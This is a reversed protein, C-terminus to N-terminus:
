RPLRDIVLRLGNGRSNNRLLEAPVPTTDLSVCEHRNAEVSGSRLTQSSDANDTWCWEHVNGMMDFLGWANPLKSACPHERRALGTQPSRTWSNEAFWAHRGLIERNELQDQDGFHYRTTSGARCAYEWEDSTPLRFGNQDSGGSALLNVDGAAGKFCEFEARREGNLGYCQPLGCTVSCWNCFTLAESWNIHTAPDNAKASGEAPIVPPRGSIKSWCEPQESRFADFLEASVETASMWFPKTKQSLAPIRVFDLRAQRIRITVWEPQEQNENPYEISFSKADGLGGSPASVSTPSSTGPQPQITEMRRMLLQGASRMAASSSVSFASLDFSDQSSRNSWWENRKEERAEAIALCLVAKLHSTAKEDRVDVDRIFRDLENLPLWESLEAILRTRTEQNESPLYWEQPILEAYNLSLLLATVVVPSRASQLKSTFEASWAKRNEESVQSDKLIVKKIALFEPLEFASNIAGAEEVIRSRHESEARGGDVLITAARLSQRSNEESKFEEFVEAARRSSIWPHQGAIALGESVQEPPSQFVPELKSTYRTWQFASFTLIAILLGSAIMLRRLLRTRRGGQVIQIEDATLARMGALGEDIANLSTADLDDHIGQAKELARQELIRRARPGAAESSQYLNHIHMALSDHALRSAPEIEVNSGSDPQILLYHDICSKRLETVVADRGPYRPLCAPVALPDGQLLAKLTQHRSTLEPTVHCELFDLLLGAEISKKAAASLSQDSVIAQIQMRVFDGLTGRHRRYLSETINPQRSERQAEDWLKKMLIQLTPAVSAESDALLETAIRLSLGKEITLSYHEQLHRDRAPGEIAEHIGAANLCDLFVESKWLGQLRSNIRSFWETRFSLISRGRPAVNRDAFIEALDAVFREWDAPAPGSSHTFAEELQDLVVLLPRGTRAERARWADASRIAKGEDNCLDEVFALRLSDLVGRAPDLRITVVDWVESGDYSQQLRPILGAELISSKGVGSQGHLLLIPASSRSTVREYLRRVEQGRGFFIAVDESTFRRLGPYPSAPLSGSQPVPLLALPDGAADPLNWEEVWEAGPATRIFWPWHGHMSEGAEVSDEDCYLLRTNGRCSATAEGAAEDYASRISAGTALGKYFRAAFNKAVEGNVAQTTAIVCPVGAAIWLEVQRETSCGNLFVLKLGSHGRVIQSLGRAGAGTGLATRLLLESGNAHGAYHFISVRNRNRQFVEVIDTLKLFPPLELHCLGFEGSVPQLSAQIARAEEEVHITSDETAFAFLLVPRSSLEPM